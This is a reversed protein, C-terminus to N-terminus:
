DLAASGESPGCFLPSCCRASPVSCGGSLWMPPPHWDVAVDVPGANCTRGDTWREARAFRDIVAGNVRVKWAPFSLLRLM